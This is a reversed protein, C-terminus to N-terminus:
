RSATARWRVSPTTVHTRPHGHLLLLPPGAGGHRVRLVAEGMDVWELEFGDFVESEQGGTMM